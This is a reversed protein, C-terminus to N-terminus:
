ASVKETRLFVARLLDRRKLLDATPGDFLIRGREMFYARRAITLAINASQEVLVITVGSEHITRVSTLLENITKPALGLTLEDIMLLKPRSMMAQALALMQQEGGSLTRVIHDIREGLRPFLELSENIRRRVEQPSRRATWASALLTEEVTLQPFLFQGGPSLVVGEAVSEEPEHFTINRGNFFVVGSDPHLLGAITKLLTSKGAGNTGLLAVIEGERVEFDIDFLIQVVDYSVDLGRCVLLSQRGM